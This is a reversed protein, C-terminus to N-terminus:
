IKVEEWLIDDLGFVPGDRCVQKLGKKTNITCAYCSGIGCGLRVELSVQCKRLKSEESRKEGEGKGEGKSPSPNLTIAM